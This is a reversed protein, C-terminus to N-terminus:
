YPKRIEGFRRADAARVNHRNYTKMSGSGTTSSLAHNHIREVIMEDVDLDPFITAQTRRLDHFTWDAAGSLRDLERKMATFGTLHKNVDHGSPFVFPSGKIRPCAKLIQVALRSLPLVHPQNNKTSRAPMKWIAESLDVDNWRMGAVESRRQGLLALLKFLPGYPYDLAEAVAWLRGLEDNSLVRERGGNESLPAQAM